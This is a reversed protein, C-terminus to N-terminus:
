RQHHLGTRSYSQRPRSSVVEQAASPKYSSPLDLHRFFHSPWLSTHPCMTAM